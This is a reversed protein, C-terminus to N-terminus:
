MEPLNVVGQTPFRRVKVAADKLRKTIVNGRVNGLEGETVEFTGGLAYLSVPM